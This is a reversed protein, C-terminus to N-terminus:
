STASELKIRNFEKLWEILQAESIVGLQVLAEGFFIYGDQQEKLLAGVQKITLYNERVAIEGFKEYTDEQLVLIKEVAEGSLLGKSRALQGIMLNTSKQLIRANIVDTATILKKDLLFRGFKLYKYESSMSLYYYFRLAKAVVRGPVSNAIFLGPQVTVSFINKLNVFL